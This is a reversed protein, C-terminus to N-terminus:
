EVSFDLAGEPHQPYDRSGETKVKRWGTAGFDGVLGVSIEGWASMEPLGLPEFVARPVGLIRSLEQM